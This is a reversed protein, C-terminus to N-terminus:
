HFIGLSYEKSESNFLGFLGVVYKKKNNLSCRFYIYLIFVSLIDTDGNKLPEKRRNKENKKYECVM